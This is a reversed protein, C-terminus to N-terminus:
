RRGCCKKFKKESGCPCPDNPYVKKVMKQSTGNIGDAFSFTSVNTATADLDMQLGMQELEERGKSLIRAAHSSGPAIALGNLNIPMMHRLENPTNGRNAWLRISNMIDMAYRLFENAKDIDEVSIDYGQMAAFVFQVFDHPDRENGGKGVDTAQNHLERMFDNMCEETSVGVKKAARAFNALYIKEIYQRFRKEAASVEYYDEDAYRLFEKKSPLYFQKDITEILLLRYSTEESVKMFFEDLDYDTIQHKKSVLFEMMEEREQLFDDRFCEHLLLGDMTTHITPVADGIVHQLSCLGLYRPQFMITNQYTGNERNYGHFNTLGKEYNRLIEEFEVLHIAGYLNVAVRAYESILCMYNKRKQYVPDKVLEYYHETSGYNGCLNELYEDSEYFALCFGEFLTDDSMVCAILEVRDAKKLKTGNYEIEDIKNWVALTETGIVSEMPFDITEGTEDEIVPRLDDMDALKALRFDNNALLINSMLEYLMKVDNARYQQMHKAIQIKTVM